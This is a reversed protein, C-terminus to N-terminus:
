MVGSSMPSCTSRITESTEKMERFFDQGGGEGQQLFSPIGQYEDLGLKLELRLVDTGAADDPVRGQVLPRHVGYAGEDRLLQVAGPHTALGGGDGSRVAVM